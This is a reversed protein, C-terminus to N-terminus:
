ASFDETVNSFVQLLLNQLLTDIIKAINVGFEERSSKTQLM